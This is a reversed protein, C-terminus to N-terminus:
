GGFAFCTRSVHCYTVMDALQWTSLQEAQPHAVPHDQCTLVLQQLQVCCQVRAEIAGQGTTAVFSLGLSSSHDGRTVLLENGTQCMAADCLPKVQDCLVAACVTCDGPV